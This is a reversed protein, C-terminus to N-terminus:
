LARAIGTWQQCSTPGVNWFEAVNQTTTVSWHRSNWTRVSDRVKAHLPDQQDVFRLLIGTDLLCLM